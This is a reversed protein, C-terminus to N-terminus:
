QMESRNKLRWHRRIELVGLRVLPHAQGVAHRRDTDSVVGLLGEALHDKDVQGLGTGGVALLHRAGGRGDRM